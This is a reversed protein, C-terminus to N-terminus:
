CFSFLEPSDIRPARQVGRSSDELEGPLSVFAPLRLGAEFVMDPAPEKSPIQNMQGYTLIWITGGTFM